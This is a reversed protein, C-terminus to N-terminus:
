GPLVSVTNSFTNTVFIENKHSDVAVGWPQSGVTITAVITNSADSIESVTNSGANTVFVENLHSDFAVGEPVAGVSVTATVMNTGDSVVSVMRSGYNAVFVENKYCDFVLGAPQSGVMITTAYASNLSLTLTLLIFLSFLSVHKLYPEMGLDCRETRLLEV